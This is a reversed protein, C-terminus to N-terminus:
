FQPPPTFVEHHQQRFLLHFQSLASSGSDIYFSSAQELKKDQDDDDGLDEEIPLTTNDSDIPASFPTNYVKIITEEGTNSTKGQLLGPMGVLTLLLIVIPALQMKNM